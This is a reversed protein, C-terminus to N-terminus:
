IFINLKVHKQVLKDVDEKEYKGSHLLRDYKVPLAQVHPGDKRKWRWGSVLGLKESEEALAEWFGPKPTWPTKSNEVIDVGLGLRHVSGMKGTGKETLERSREVTRITEFVMPNYGRAKVRLLLIEIANRFIPHLFKIDNIPKNKIPKVIKKKKTAMFIIGILSISGSIFPLYKNYKVM